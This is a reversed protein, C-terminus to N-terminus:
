NSGAIGISATGSISLGTNTQAREPTEPEGDVGCAALAFLSVISTVWITLNRTGM